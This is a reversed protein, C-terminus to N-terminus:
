DAVQRVRELRPDLALTALDRPRNVNVPAPWPLARAAVASAWGRVSRRADDAVFRDLPEALAAPWIGIVPSDALCAPGRTDRLAALLAPDIVPTDCPLTLVAEFGHGAAHHLAAAIGGLPGLDPAPRDPLATLAGHTRGCVVLADVWPALTAAVHDILPRGAALALAKDSGFRRARGGAIIAGLIM